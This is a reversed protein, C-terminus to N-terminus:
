PHSRFDCYNQCLFGPIEAASTSQRTRLASAPPDTRSQIAINEGNKETEQRSHVNRVSLDDLAPRLIRMPIQCHGTSIAMGFDAPITNPRVRIEIVVLSGERYPAHVRSDVAALAMLVQDECLHSGLAGIAMCINMATLETCFAVPTVRHAAPIHRQLGDIPVLVSERQHPGMAGKIALAAVLPFRDPLKYAHARGASGAMRSIKLGCLRRNVRARSERQCAIVTM